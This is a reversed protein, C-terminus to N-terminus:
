PCETGEDLVSWASWDGAELVLVDRTRVEVDLGNIRQEQITIVDGKPIEGPVFLLHLTGDTAIRAFAPSDATIQKYECNDYREPVEPTKATALM